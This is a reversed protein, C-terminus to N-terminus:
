LFSHIKYSISNTGNFTNTHGITERAISHSVSPGIQLYIKAPVNMSFMNIIIRPRPLKPYGRWLFIRGDEKCNICTTKKIKGPIPFKKLAHDM